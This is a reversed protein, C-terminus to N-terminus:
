QASEKKPKSKIIVAAAAAIAAAVVIVAIIAVVAVLSIGGGASVLELTFCDIYLKSELESNMRLEVTNDGKKLKVELPAETWAGDTDSLEVTQKKGNVYVDISGGGARYRLNMMYTGSIKANVSDRTKVGESMGLIVYGQGKYDRVNLSAGNAVNQEVNLTEFFEAEHQMIGYYTPPAAPESLTPEKCDTLRGAANGSCKVTIDLPGNHSVTLTYVGNAWNETVEPKRCDVGRDTFEFTPKEKAGNIKIVDDKLTLESEDDYNSLYFEIHDTYERVVGASYRQYELEMSEATNYKLPISAKAVTSRKYPNYTVWTNEYRGAYLDGSYEEEFLSDFDDIKDDVTPWLTKYDSKKIVREFMAEYKSDAFGATEPISPYRGTKKYFSHNDKLNGDGDMKYLGEYMDAPTCYKDDDKGSDVDNVMILKTRSIVEERTPIRFSGDTFKRFMDTFVNKFQTTSGWKRITYGKKDTESKDEFFDDVPVLEPGDIVTAGNLIMREFHISLGTSMTYGNTGVGDEATWGTDDYRIGFNGCYGSLYAGLVLSEMDSLYGVQTYKELLIFNGSYKRAAEEFEPIRKIMALPNISQGWENGCWSDVLYGGYKNCLELLGAFHAYREEAKIPFGKVYNDFGWFQECYNFGIFNPYDRFFEAFLTDEYDDVAPNYDPFHSPGGSAPQVMAWVGAEACARLWSKATEYGYEVVQFKQQDENWSISMSINFVVYPRIDEPILEIIREPDPTNWTDIHLIWMPQDPSVPRRYPNDATATFVENTPSDEGFVPIALVGLVLAAAALLATLKKIIDM